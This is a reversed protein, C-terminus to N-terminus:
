NGKNKAFDSLAIRISLDEGKWEVGIFRGAIHDSLKQMGPINAMSLAENGLFKPALYICLEDVIEAQLAAGLLSAGAELLVDNIEKEALLCLLVNLDLHGDKEPLAIYESSANIPPTITSAHAVVTTSPQQFIAATSPVRLQRDLVVRLPQQFHIDEPLDPFNRVTLRCNDRIVTQASTIIAGSRARLGHGDARAAEGTIWQSEGSQMAIKGDLSMAIKARVYPRQRQMRSIFGINMREAEAALVGEIVEIGAAQLMAIGQGNVLPNPDRHAIVVRQVGADILAQACPGTRGHHACPELTVYCTAGRAKEGAAQLAHIEAHPTGAQQHWGAGVMFGERVMVCGVCPNPRATYQGQQALAIAKQMWDSEQALM